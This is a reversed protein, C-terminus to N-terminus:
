GSLDQSYRIGGFLYLYVLRFFPFEVTCAFTDCQYRYRYLGMVSFDGLIYLLASVLALLIVTNAYSVYMAGQYFGPEPELRVGCHPCTENM